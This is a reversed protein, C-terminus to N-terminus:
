GMLDDLYAEYSDDPDSSIVDYDGSIDLLLDLDPSAPSQELHVVAAAAAASFVEAEVMELVTDNLLENLLVMAAEGESVEDVALVEAESVVDFDPHGQEWLAGRTAVVGDLTSLGADSEDFASTRGTVDVMEGYPRRSADILIRGVELPIRDPDSSWLEVTRLLHAAFTHVGALASGVAYEVHQRDVIDFEVETRRELESSGVSECDVMIDVEPISQFVTGVDFPQTTGGRTSIM